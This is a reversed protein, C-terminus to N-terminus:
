RLTSSFSAVDSSVAGRALTVIEEGDVKVCSALHVLPLDGWREFIVVADRSTHLGRGQLNHYRMRGPNIINRPLIAGVM